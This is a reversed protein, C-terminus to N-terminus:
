QGICLGRTEWVDVDDGCSKSPFVRRSDFTSEFPARLSRRRRARAFGFRPSLARAGLAPSVDGHRTAPPIPAAERTRGLPTAVTRRVIAAANPHQPCQVETPPVQPIAAATTMAAAAAAKTSRSGEERPSEGRRGGEGGRAHVRGAAVRSAHPALRSEDEPSVIVRARRQASAPRRLAPVVARTLRTDNTGRAARPPRAGRPRSAVRCDRRTPDSRSRRTVIQSHARARARECARESARKRSAGRSPHQWPHNRIRSRSDRSQGDRDDEEDFANSSTRKNILRNAAKVTVWSWKSSLSLSFLTHTLARARTYTPSLTLFFYSTSM